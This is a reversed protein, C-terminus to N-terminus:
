WFAADHMLYETRLLKRPLEVGLVGRDHTGLTPCATGSHLFASRPAETVSGDEHVRDHQPQMQPTKPPWIAM